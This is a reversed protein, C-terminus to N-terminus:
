IEQKNRAIANCRWAWGQFLVHIAGWVSFIQDPKGRWKIGCEWQWEELCRSQFANATELSFSVQFLLFYHLIIGKLWPVAADSPIFSYKRWSYLKVNVHRVWTQCQVWVILGQFRISQVWFVLLEFEPSKLDLNGMKEEGQGDLVSYARVTISACSMQSCYQPLEKKPDSSNGLLGCPPLM